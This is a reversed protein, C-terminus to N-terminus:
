GVDAICHVVHNKFERNDLKEVASQLDNLTEYEVYRHSNAGTAFHLM